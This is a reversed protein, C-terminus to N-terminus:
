LCPLYVNGLVFTQYENYIICYLHVHHKWMYTAKPCFRTPFLHLFFTFCRTFPFSFCNFESMINHCIAVNVSSKNMVESAEHFYAQISSELAVQWMFKLLYKKSYNVLLTSPTTYKAFLDFSLGDLSPTMLILSGLRESNIRCSTRYRRSNLLFERDKTWMQWCPCKM